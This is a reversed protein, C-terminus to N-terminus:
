STTRILRKGSVQPECLDYKNRRSQRRSKIDCRKCRFIKSIGVHLNKKIDHRQRGRATIMADDRGIDDSRTWCARRESSVVINISASASLTATCEKGWYSSTLTIACAAGCSSMEKTSTTPEWTLCAMALVIDVIDEKGWVIMLQKYTSVLVGLTAAKYRCTLFKAPTNVWCYKLDSPTATDIFVRVRWFRM